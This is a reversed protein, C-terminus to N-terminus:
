KNLLCADIEQTVSFAEEKLTHFGNEINFQFTTNYDLGILLFKGDKLYIRNHFNKNRESVNNKLTSGLSILFNNVNSELNEKKSIQAGRVRTINLKKALAEYVGQRKFNDYKKKFKKTNDKQPSPVKKSAYVRPSLKKSEETLDTIQKKLNECKEKDKKVKIELELIQQKLVEKEEEEDYQKVLSHQPDNERLSEVSTCQIAKFIDSPLKEKDKLPKENDNSLEFSDLSVAKDCEDLLNFVRIILENSSGVCVLSQVLFYYILIIYNFKM